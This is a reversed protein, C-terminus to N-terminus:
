DESVGSTLIHLDVTSSELSVPLAIVVVLNAATLGELTIYIYSANVIM